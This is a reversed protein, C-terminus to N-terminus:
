LSKDDVSSDTDAQLKSNELELQHVQKLLGVNEKKYDKIKNDKGRLTVGTAIGNILSIMWSLFLGVLLSGIMVVYLPIGPITTQLFTLSVAGTNQTAFYAIIGGFLITIILTAVAGDYLKGRRLAVTHHCIIKEM